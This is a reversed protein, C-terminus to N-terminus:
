NKGTVNGYRDKRSIGAYAKIKELAAKDWYRYNNDDRVSQPIVGADEWSRITQTTVGVEKAVENRRYMREGTDADIFISIIRM